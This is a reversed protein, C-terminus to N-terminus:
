GQLETPGDKYIKRMAEARRESASVARRRTGIEDNRINAATGSYYARRPAASAVAGIAGRARMASLFAAYSWTADRARTVYGTVSDFMEGLVYDDSHRVVATLM